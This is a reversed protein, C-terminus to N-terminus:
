SRFFTAFYVDSREKRLDGERAGERKERRGRVQHVVDLFQLFIPTFTSSIPTTSTHSGNYSFRHGFALWDKELLAKFGEL